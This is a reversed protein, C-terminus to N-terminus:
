QLIQSTQSTQQFLDVLSLYPYFALSLNFSTICFYNVISFLCWLDYYLFMEWGLLNLIGKKHEVEELFRSYDKWHEASRIVFKQWMDLKIQGYVMYRRLYCIGKKGEEEM